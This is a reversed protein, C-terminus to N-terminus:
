GDKNGKELMLLDIVKITRKVGDKTAEYEGILLYRDCDSQYVFRDYGPAENIIARWKM